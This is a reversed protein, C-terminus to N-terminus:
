SAAAPRSTTWPPSGLTVQGTSVVPAAVDIRVLGIQNGPAEKSFDTCGALGVALLLAIAMVVRM